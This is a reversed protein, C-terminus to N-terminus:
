HIAEFYFPYVDLMVVGQAGSPIMTGAPITLSVSRLNGDDDAQQTLNAHYDMYVAETRAPNFLLLGARHGDAPYRVGPDLEFRVDLSGADKDTPPLYEMSDVSIGEPLAAAQGDFPRTVYTGAVLMKEYWNNALGALALYPGFTPISLVNTDAYAAPRLAVRDDPLTGRLEFLNFPINIGTIPMNFNQNTLMFDQGNYRGNLPLTFDSTPDAVLQGDADRRAGIAWLVVKGQNAADPETAAVTGVIWDIYDFGIQNLSPLMPPLPAALRTWEVASTREDGVTLPFTGTSAPVEFSFKGTFDGAQKGGLTLNGLRAGGSYYKGSVSLTYSGAPLFQLPRIYIYRGDASQEVDLPIHPQINVKLADKPCGIPSNCVRADVTDGNKRVLLRLTVMASSELSQPFDAQLNGGPTVYYLGTFADPLDNGLVCRTDEANLCFDYPVYWVQGHEGGIYVGNLGLAPSGNLDNRDRLEPDTSTTDYAWRLSGDKANLAYLKGNGAGFYLIGNKGDPTHGLAPSSRITDGTDYKWILSGDPRLAYFKGDASGFYIARTKGDREDLAVTSYIHDGTPFKWRVDGTQPDLAYLNSDFSGIYVTGDAGIVASAAIFGLTRKSWLPNGGPDVAHIYTDVSGWFITGDDAFAALSWNNSGTPYTWRLTGDPNLAYYLFNTNGAYLSGDFGVGVNGEFWRNYSVEPRLEAEYKWILRDKEDAVEGTRFHYVFGDGSIFTIPSTGLQSDYRGLAGGSDIIEGTKYKWAVTGDPNLAYFYHDASGVYIVGQNDIVPTSFIGKGTQFMWPQDGAYTAPLPSSGTNRQDRRFTPWPSDAQVPVRYGYPESPLSPDLVIFGHPNSERQGFVTNQRVILSGHGAGGPLRVEIKDASWSVVDLVDSEGSGTQLFVQGERQQRGFRRGELTLTQGPEIAPVRSILPRYDRVWTFALYALALGALLLLARVWFKAKKM